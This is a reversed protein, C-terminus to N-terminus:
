TERRSTELPQWAGTEASAVAADVFRAAAVGDAFTPFDGADGDVIARYVSRVLKTLADHWGEPHGAPLDCYTAAEATLVEPDKLLLENASGRRGIWLEEPREQEWRAAAESGDVQVRLGNKSGASVQSVLAQGTTGNSFRVLLSAWDETEVDTLEAAVPASAFTETAEVPRRRQEHLRGFVASVETIRQGLVFSSLDAWHSGIDAVARSRGGVAAGVRWNYDTERLLWDQLYGGHVLVPRGLAGQAIRARLERVLPYFRYNFCVANVRGADEALRQLEVAEAATVGLPKESVVHKGAALAAATVEAHLANPVCVHVVDIREDQLLRRYDTTWADLQVGREAAGAAAASREALVLTGALGSRRVAALHARGAFGAGVVGVGLGACIQPKGDFAAIRPSTEMGVVRM